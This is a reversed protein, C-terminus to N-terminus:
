KGAYISVDKSDYSLPIHPPLDDFLPNQFEKIVNQQFTDYAPSTATRLSVGILGEFMLEDQASVYPYRESVFSQHLTTTVYAYGELMDENKATMLINEVDYKYGFTYIIRVQQKLDIMLNQLAAMNKPNTKDGQMTTAMTRIIIHKGRRELIDKVQKALVFYIEVDVILIGVKNWHLFDTIAAFAPAAALTNADSHTFTPYTSKDSLKQSNCALSVVPIGWAAALLAQPQCVSSCVDGIIGDLDDVSAWMDILMQLGRRPECYSDRWIWKVQYGPLLQRRHVEKIGLEIASGIIGGGHWGREWPLSYGLTLTNNLIVGQINGSSTFHFTSLYLCIIHTLMTNLIVQDSTFPTHAYHGSNM